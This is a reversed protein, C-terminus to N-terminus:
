VSKTNIIYNSLPSDM